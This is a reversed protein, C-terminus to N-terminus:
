LMEIEYRLSKLELDKGKEKSDQVETKRARIREELSPKHKGSLVDPDVQM